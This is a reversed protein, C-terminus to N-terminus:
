RGKSDKFITQLRMEKKKKEEIEINTKTFHRSPSMKRM